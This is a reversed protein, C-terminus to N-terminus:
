FMALYVLDLLTCWIYLQKDFKTGNGGVRESHLCFLHLPGREVCPTQRRRRRRRRRRPSAFSACYHLAFFSIAARLFSPPSLALVLSTEALTAEARERQNPPAFFPFKGPCKLRHEVSTILNPGRKTRSAMYSSFLPPSFFILVQSTAFIDPDIGLHCPPPLPFSKNRKNYRLFLQVCSAEGSKINEEEEVKTRCVVAASPGMPPLIM